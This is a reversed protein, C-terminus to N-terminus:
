AMMKEVKRTTRLREFEHAYTNIADTYKGLVAELFKKPDEVLVPYENQDLLPIKEYGLDCYVKILNIFEPTIIFNGGYAFYRMESRMKLKLMDIQNKLTFRYDAESIIDEVSKM